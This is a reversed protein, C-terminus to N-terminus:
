RLSSILQHYRNHSSSRHLYRNRIFCSSNTNNTQSDLHYWASCPSNETIQVSFRATSNQKSSSFGYVTCAEVVVMAARPSLLVGLHLVSIAARTIQASRSEVLKLWPEWTTFVIGKSFRPNQFTKTTQMFMDCLDCHLAIINGWFKLPPVGPHLCAASHKLARLVATIYPASVCFQCTM